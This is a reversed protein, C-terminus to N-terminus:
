RNFINELGMSIAISRATRGDALVQDPDAGKGVLAAIAGLDKREIARPLRQTAEEARKLKAESAREKEADSNAIKAQYSREKEQKLEELSKAGHNHTGFPCYDNATNALIWNAFVDQDTADAKSSYFHFIQPVPPVSGFGYSPALKEIFVLGKILNCLDETSWDALVKDWKKWFVGYDSPRPLSNFDIDKLQHTKGLAALKPLTSLVSDERSIVSNGKPLPVVKVQM